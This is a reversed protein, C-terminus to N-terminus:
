EVAMVHVAAHAPVAYLGGGYYFIDDVIGEPFPPAGNRWLDLVTHAGATSAVAWDSVVYSGPQMGYVDPDAHERQAYNHLEWESELIVADPYGLVGLPPGGTPAVRIATGVAGGAAAGPPRAKWRWRNNGLWDRDVETNPCALQYDIGAISVVIHEYGAEWLEAISAPNAM